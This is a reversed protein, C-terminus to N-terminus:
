VCFTKPMKINWIRSSWCKTNQCILYVCVGVLENAMKWMVLLKHLFNTYGPVNGTVDIRPIM